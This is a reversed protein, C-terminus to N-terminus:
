RLPLKEHGIELSSVDSLCTAGFPGPTAIVAIVRVKTFLELARKYRKATYSRRGSEILDAM